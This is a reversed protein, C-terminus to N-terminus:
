TQKEVLIYVVLRHEESKQIRQETNVLVSRVDLIVVRIFVRSECRV